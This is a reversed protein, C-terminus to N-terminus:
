GATLASVVDTRSFDEGKYLLPADLSRALAYAACDALNLRAPHYGKGFRAYAESAIRAQDDDFPQVRISWGEILQRVRRAMRGDKRGAVVTEAEFVSMASIAAAPGTEFVALYRAADPEDLIVAVLVSTDVVIM